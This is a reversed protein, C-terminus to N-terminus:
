WTVREKRGRRGRVLYGEGEEWEKRKGPTYHETSVFTAMELEDDTSEKDSEVSVEPQKHFTSKKSNGDSSVSLSRIAVVLSTFLLFPSMFLLM